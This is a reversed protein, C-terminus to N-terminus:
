HAPQSISRQGAATAQSAPQARGRVTSLGLIAPCLAFTLWLQKSFEGSLFFDAALFAIVALVLCRAVLEMESDGNREFARAARGAAALCFAAVGLFALLGPIGLDALLELYVNHAVHPVDVILYASTLAGVGQVYHIAADQFNGSGVGNLPHAEVMRWGVRWIDLRGSTSTMTVRERAALPAIAVFYAASGLATLALLLAARRRWRGGFVTAAVITVGLAVLGGRSLTTLVGVLCIVGGVAALQRTWARTSVGALGVAIPIAAVLVAAQDNADGLGGTLRAYGGTGIAAPDVFGYATSAIAGILFAWLVLVLHERRRVAVMAIPFLLMDLVYSTSATLAAGSNAAWTVSLASWLALAVLCFSLRPPIRAVAFSSRASGVLRQAYWSLFLLAGAIKMFSAGGSASNAFVDLFSIVTFLALGATVDSLTVLSFAAALAVGLGIPPKIGALLGVAGAFALLLAVAGAQDARIRAPM